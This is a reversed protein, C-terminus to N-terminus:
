HGYYDYTYRRTAQSAGRRSGVSSISESPAISRDDLPEGCHRGMEEIVEWDGPNPQSRATIDSSSAARAPSRFTAADRPPSPCYNSPAISGSYGSALSPPPARSGSGDSRDDPEFRISGQKVTMWVGAPLRMRGNGRRGQLFTDESLFNVEKCDFYDFVRDYGVAPFVRENHYTAYRKESKPNGLFCWELDRTTVM